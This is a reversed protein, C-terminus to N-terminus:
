MTEGLYQFISVRGNFMDAVYVREQDDLWVGAPLYFQGPANGAGGIPMLFRGAADFVLLHDFFSEVVFVLGESSVAIGKPRTLNGIYLGRQGISSLYRGEADFVLVRANLSDTVFIRDAAYALYVPANMEGEGEGSRGFAFHLKGDLGLVKVQNERTDAVLVRGRSRDFALGTPRVFPATGFKGLPEGTPGLRAVFGLEADSVLTEGNPLPLVGVPAKFRTGPAAREWVKLEGGVADFVLLAQRSVDTVYVRGASDVAGGQPRQLVVPKPGIGQGLGVVWSFFQKAASTSQAESEKFNNEGSLEGVYVFRPVEPQPPWVPWREIGASGVPEVTMVKPVEACAALFLSACVFAASRLTM